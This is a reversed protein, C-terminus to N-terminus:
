SSSATMAQQLKEPKVLKVSLGLLKWALGEPIYKYQFTLLDPKTPYHGQIILVGDENKLPAQHFIPSLNELSAWKADLKYLSSYADELQQVSYQNQWLKSIYRHFVSMDKGDVAKGFAATTERVLEVLQDNSPIEMPPLPASKEQTDSIGKRPTTIGLIKWSGAEKVLAIELPVTAGDKTTVSGILEGSNNEFSRSTWSTETIDQLSNAELFRKLGDLSTNNKFAQSLNDYAKQIHGERVQTFFTDASEALGSTLYFIGGVFLAIAVGIGLLIKIIKMVTDGKM